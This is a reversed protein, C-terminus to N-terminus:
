PKRKAVKDLASEAKARNNRAILITSVIGIAIGIVFVTLLSLFSNAGATM